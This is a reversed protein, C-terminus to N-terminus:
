FKYNNKEIDLGPFEDATYEKDLSSREDKITVTIKNYLIDDKKDSNIKSKTYLVAISIIVCIIVAVIVVILVKSKNTSEDSKM